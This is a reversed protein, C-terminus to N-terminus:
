GPSYSPRGAGSDDPGRRSLVFLPFSFYPITSWAVISTNRFGPSLGAAVDCRVCPSVASPLVLPPASPGCRSSVEWGDEPIGPLSSLESRDPARDVSPPEGLRNENLLLPGGRCPM